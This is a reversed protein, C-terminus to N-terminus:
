QTRSLPIKEHNPPAPKTRRTAISPFQRIEFDSVCGVRLWRGKESVFISQRIKGVLSGKSKKGEAGAPDLFKGRRVSPCVSSIEQFFTTLVKPAPEFSHASPRATQRHKNFIAVILLQIPFARIAVHLPIHIRQEKFDQFEYRAAAVSTARSVWSFLYHKSPFSLPRSSSSNSTEVFFNLCKYVLCGKAFIISKLYFPEKFCKTIESFKAINYYM